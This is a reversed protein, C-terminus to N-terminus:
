EWENERENVLSQQLQANPDHLPGGLLYFMRLTPLSNDISHGGETSIPCAIKNKIESNKLGGM